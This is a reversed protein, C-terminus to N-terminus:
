RLILDRLTALDIREPISQRRSNFRLALLLPTAVHNHKDGVREAAGGNPQGSSLPKVLKEAPAQYPM